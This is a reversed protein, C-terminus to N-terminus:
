THWGWPRHSLLLIESNRTVKLGLRTASVSLLWLHDMRKLPAGPPKPQGSVHGQGCEAHLIHQQCYYGDTSAWLGAAAEQGRRGDGQPQRGHLFAQCHTPPAEWRQGTSVSHHSQREHGWRPGLNVKWPAPHFITTNVPIEVRECGMQTRLQYQTLLAMVSIGSASCVLHTGM